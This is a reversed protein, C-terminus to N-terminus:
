APGRMASLVLSSGALAVPGDGVRDRLLAVAEVLLAGRATEPVAELRWAFAWWGWTREVLERPGSYTTVDEVRELGIADFGASALAARLRDDDGAVQRTLRSDTLEPPPPLLREMVEDLAAQAPGVAGGIPLSAALRGGARLVRRAEALARGLDPCFHLAHGCAVADFAGDAVGLAEIDMRALAVQSPAAERTLALMGEALDVALVLGAEGVAAALPMTLVGPGCGLDLVREGPRLGLRDFDVTLV